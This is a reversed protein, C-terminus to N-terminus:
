RCNLTGGAVASILRKKYNKREDNQAGELYLLFNRQADYTADKNGIQM